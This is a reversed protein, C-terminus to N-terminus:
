LVVLDALTDVVLDDDLHVLYARLELLIRKVVCNVVAVILLSSSELLTSLCLVFRCGVV